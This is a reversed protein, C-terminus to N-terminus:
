VAWIQAHAKSRIVDDPLAWPLNVRRRGYSAKERGGEM